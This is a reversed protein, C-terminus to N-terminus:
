KLKNKVRNLISKLNSANKVPKDHKLEIGLTSQVRLERNIKSEINLTRGRLTKADMKHEPNIEIVSYLYDYNRWIKQYEFFIVEGEIDDAIIKITDFDVDEDVPQLGSPNNNRLYDQHYKSPCALILRGNESLINKVLKHFTDRESFPIHEYVDIMVIADYDDLPLGQTLDYSKFTLNEQAGFLKSATGILVPSLDVALVQSAPFAKAFEHSSWGLGCGIDLINKSNEPIFQGLNKIASIIRNNGQVYDRILKEGYHNYYDLSEKM